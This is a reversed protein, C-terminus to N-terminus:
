FIYRLPIKGMENGLKPIYNQSGDFLLKPMYRHPNLIASWTYLSFALWGVALDPSKESQTTPHGSGSMKTLAAMGHKNSIIVIQNVQPSLFIQYFM